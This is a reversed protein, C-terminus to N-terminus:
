LILSPPAYIRQALESDYMYLARSDGGFLDYHGILDNANQEEEGQEKIFWDLFQMTRYDRVEAAASYIDNISATIYQEHELAATLPVRFDSYVQDPASIAGLKIAVDNNLLYQMFLMAHDREEQAQVKFWNGFGDLNKDFYYNSMDLYLYASYFEKVIQEMLLQKVKENLM